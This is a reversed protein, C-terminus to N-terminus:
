SLKRLTDLKAALLGALILLLLAAGGLVLRRDRLQDGKREIMELTRDQRKIGDQLHATILDADMSHSLPKVSVLTRLSERLYVDENELFLGSQKAARLSGLTGDMAAQLRQTGEIIAAIVGGSGDPERHCHGCHGVGSGGLMWAGPLAIAHAGHCAACGSRLFGPEDQLAEHCAGCRMRDSTFHPSKRYADGTTAHCHACVNVISDVGPPATGHAGHCDACAPAGRSQDVLLARGHVSDTFEAVVDSPLDHREMLAADAHCRSCTAPQNARHVPAQPDAGALIRHSDHCDTCVAASTDGRQLVARGHPSNRYHALQDTPLAFALMRQTDAHCNGCLEPIRERSPKGAFGASAAHSGAKDRVAAPDGGHCDVCGLAGAHVGAEFATTELGHCSAACSPRDQARLPAAALLGALALPALRRM